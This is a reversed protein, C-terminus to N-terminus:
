TTALGAGPLVMAMGVPSPEHALDLRDGFRQVGEPRPQRRVEGGVRDLQEAYALGAAPKEASVVM